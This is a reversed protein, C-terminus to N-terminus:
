EVEISCRNAAIQMVTPLCLGIVASSLMGLLAAFLAWPLPKAGSALDWLRDAM